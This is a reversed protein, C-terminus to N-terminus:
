SPSRRTQLWSTVPELGTNEVLRRRSSSVRFRAGTRQLRAGCVVACSISQVEAQVGTDSIYCDCTGALSVSRAALLARGETPSLTEQTFDFSPTSRAWSNPSFSDRM